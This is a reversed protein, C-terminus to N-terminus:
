QRNAKDSEMEEYTMGCDREHEAFEGNWLAGAAVMEKELAKLCESHMRWSVFDDDNKGAWYFHKEGIKITKGCWICRYKKKAHPERTNVVEVRM